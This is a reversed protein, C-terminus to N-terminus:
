RSKSSKFRSDIPDEGDAYIKEKFKLYDHKRIFHETWKAGCTKEFEELLTKCESGDKQREFCELYADRAKYCVKRAARDKFEM